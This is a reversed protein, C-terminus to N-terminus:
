KKAGILLVSTGLPFNAHKLIRAELILLNIFFSNIPKPLIVYSSDNKSGKAIVSNILRYTVIMPFSFAIAYSRKTVKYGRKNVM